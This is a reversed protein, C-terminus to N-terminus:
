WFEIKGDWSPLPTPPLPTVIARGRAMIAAVIPDIRYNSLMKHPRKNGHADEKCVVNNACWRVLPNGDHRLKRGAISDLFMQTPEGFNPLDQVFKVM